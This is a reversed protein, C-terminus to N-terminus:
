KKEKKEKMGFTNKAGSFISKWWYNLISRKTDREFYIPDPLLIRTRPNKSKLMLSNALFSAFKSEKSNGDKFSLINIKLDDYAFKLKGKSAFNNAEFNFEFRNLNGSRIGIQAANKTMPNLLNLQFPEISGNVDFENESSLMNFNINVQLKAQNMVKANAYLVSTPNSNLKHSINTLPYIGANINNFTIKGPKPLNLQEAYSIDSSKIIVSDFWFPTEFQRILDQPMPPRQNENFRTNMDRYIDLRTNQLIIKNGIFSKEQLFSKLNLDHVEIQGVEGDYYDTQFPIVKQYNEKSYRPNIQIGRILLKNPNGSLNIENFLIDYHKNSDYGKFKKISLQFNDSALLKGSKNENLEFSELTLEINNIKKQKTDNEILLTADKFNIRDASIEDVISLLDENLKLNYLNPPEKEHKPKVFHFEAGDISINSTHLCNRRKNEQNNLDTIKIGPISVSVLGHKKSPRKPLIELKNLNLSKTSKKYDLRDLKFKFNGAVPKFDIHKLSASLNKATLQEKKETNPKILHVQEAELNLDLSAIEEDTKNFNNLIIIKGNQLEVQNISLEDVEKPLPISIDKFNLKKQSTGSQYIKINPHNISLQKVQLLKTRYSQKIDIGKLSFDPVNVYLHHNLKSYTVSTIDPYLIANRVFVESKRSSFGIEKAQLYHVKDSLRFLHDHLTLEFDDAFLLKNKKIENENLRFGDLELNFKNDFSITKGRKDHNVLKITGNKLQLTGIRIDNIYSKFLNYFENLDLEKKSKEDRALLEFYISPRIISFHNINLRKNFFAQHINTNYLNLFPIKINYLENKNYKKLLDIGNGEESVFLHLNKINAKNQISSVNINGITLGHLQDQLKMKYNNFQLDFNTAFFLKDSKNASISDLSFDTLKFDYNTEIIGTDAQTKLEHVLFKGHDITVLNSYVGKIYNGIFHYLLSNSSQKQIKRENGTLLKVNPKFIAIQQLPMERNHYLRFLDIDKLRISDCNLTVSTTGLNPTNNPKMELQDANLSNTESSVSINKMSFQHIQDGFNINYQGIDMQLKDAYFLKLRNAYSASDLQFQQLKININEFDQRNKQLKGKRVIGLENAHLNLYGIKLQKFDNKVLQFLDYERIQKFNMGPTDGPPIVKIRSKKLLLTDIRISDNQFVEEIDKSKIYLEPVNVWYRTKLTQMSDLPFLAINQATIGKNKISYIFEDVSLQHLSDGITEQYNSVKLFIDNAEFFDDTQSLIVSDTYFQNVGVNFNIPDKNKGKELLGADILEIEHISISNFTQNIFPKLQDILEDFKESNNEEAFTEKFQVVPKKIVIKEIDLEKNKILKKLKIYNAEFRQVTLTLNLDKEQKTPKIELEKFSVSQNLLNLKLKSFNVAYDGNTRSLVFSSIEKQAFENGFFYIACGSFLIVLILFVFLGTVLRKVIKKFSVAM